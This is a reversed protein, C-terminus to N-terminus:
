VRCVLRHEGSLGELKVGDTVPHADLEMGPNEGRKVEIHVVGQPLQWRAQYGPWDAPLKPALLLRGQRITVGLLEEVAVQYYWGAAGTYWTWGAQGERGPAYSVDAALVYPEARYERTPHYEPLLAKLLEWGEEQRDLRFCALALWIAGHTYQGGNERVGAPYARIYGPDKGGAEFPPDFLRVVGRKRDFLRELAASVARNAQQLDAGKPLASFSQAISDIQCQRSQASGLPTGDDYYGRRFWEADWATQAAVLCRQAQELFQQALEREGARECVPAFEQLVLALFWSLWVSEGRGKAGVRNMGDNWDGGGMLALGHAGFGRDLVCAIAQCAHHYLSDRKESLQPQEYREHEHAALTPSTLYGVEQQLIEWDGTTQLYRCLVWPLWLLDDTM